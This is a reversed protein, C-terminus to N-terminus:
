GRILVGGGVASPSRNCLSFSAAPRTELQAWRTAFNALPIGTRGTWSLSWEDNQASFHINHNNGFKDIRTVLTRHITRTFENYTETQTQGEFLSSSIQSMSEILATAYISGCNRGISDSANWSESYEKPGSAASTTINLTPNVSWGGSFCATTVVTVAVGDGIAARFHDMELWAEDSGLNIAHNSAKGHGFIFILLPIQNTRAHNASSRLCSLYRFSAAKHKGDPCLAKVPISKTYTNLTRNLNADLKAFMNNSHM